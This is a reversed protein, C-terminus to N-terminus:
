LAVNSKEPRDGASEAALLREYAMNKLEELVDTVRVGQPCHEQCTYCTTCDWLMRAGLAPEALGLGLSHMIQHPFLDLKQGPDEYEAVVPCVNTCTQCEFCASFTGAARSLKYRERQFDGNGNENVTLPTEPARFKELLERAGAQRAWVQPPPYGRRTLDERMTLWLDQLDIGAPCLDTCRWCNTCIFSGEQISRMERPSLKKGDALKRLAKLKESPLINPNPLGTYVPAVSCHMSCVGCHTCADLEMIRRTMVNPTEGHDGQAVERVLLSIPSTIIHFFKSFPLWALGLFCAIFHVHLLFGEAGAKALGAAIPKLIRSFSFSVFASGPRAHCSACDEEEHMELGLDLDADEAPAKDAPFVMGFEKVWYAKLPDLDDSEDLSSYEEIMRDFATYSVIKAGALLFGSLMIVALLTIAVYDGRGTTRRLGKIRRRRYLAVALGILVLLGLFDRLFLYPNTWAEEKSGVVYFVHMFLLLVFGAFICFHMFWRWFNSKLIGIQLLVDLVLGKLLGVIRRSFLVSFFGKVVATIRKPVSHPHPAPGIDKRFWGSIRYILGILFVTLSLYLLFYFM